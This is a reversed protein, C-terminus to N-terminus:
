PAVVLLGGQVLESPGGARGRVDAGAGVELMFLSVVEQADLTIALWPFIRVMVGLGVAVLPSWQTDSIEGRARLTFVGLGALAYPRVRSHGVEYRAQASVLTQWTDAEAGPSGVRTEFPGAVAALVRLRSHISLGIGLSPGPAANLGWRGQLVGGGMFACGTIAREGARETPPAPASERAAVPKPAPPAAAEPRGAVRPIDLYLDRL